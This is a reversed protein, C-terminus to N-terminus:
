LNKNAIIKIPIHLKGMKNGNPLNYNEIFFKSLEVSCGKLKYCNGYFFLRFDVQLKKEMLDKLYIAYNKEHKNWVICIEKRNKSIHGDGNLVGIIEALNEDLLIEKIEKKLYREKEIVNVNDKFEAIKKWSNFLELPIHYKGSLYNFFMARSINYNPYFKEWSNIKTKIKTFLKKRQKSSLRVFLAM